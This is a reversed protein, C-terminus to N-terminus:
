IYKVLFSWSIPAKELKNKAEVFPKTETDIGVGNFLEITSDLTLIAWKLGIISKHLLFLNLLFLGSVVFNIPTLIIVMSILVQLTFLININNYYKLIYNVDTKLSEKIFKIQEINM